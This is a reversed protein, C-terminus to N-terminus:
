YIQQTEAVYDGRERNKRLEWGKNGFNLIGCLRVRRVAARRRGPRLDWEGNRGNAM